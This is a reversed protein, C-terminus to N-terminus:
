WVSAYLTTVREMWLSSDVDYKWLVMSKDMSASLLCLPESGLRPQWRVSFVWDDHGPSFYESMVKGESVVKGGCSPHTTIIVDSDLGWGVWKRSM